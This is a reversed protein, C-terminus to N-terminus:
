LTVDMPAKTLNKVNIKKALFRLLFYDFTDGGCM